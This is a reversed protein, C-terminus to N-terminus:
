LHKELKPAHSYDRAGGCLNNDNLETYFAGCYKCVKAKKDPPYLLNKVHWAHRPRTETQVSAM